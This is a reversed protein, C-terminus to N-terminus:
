IFHQWYKLPDTDYVIFSTRSQREICLSTIILLMKIHLGQFYFFDTNESWEVGVFCVKSRNFFFFFFSWYSKINCCNVSPCHRWFNRIQSFLKVHKVNCAVAPVMQGLTLPFIWLICMSHTCKLNFLLQQPNYRTINPFPLLRAIIKPFCM